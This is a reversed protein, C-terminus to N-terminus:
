VLEEEVRTVYTAKKLGTITRKDNDFAKYEVVKRVANEVMDKTLDEKPNKIVFHHTKKSGETNLYVYLKKTM